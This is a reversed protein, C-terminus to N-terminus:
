QCSDVLLVQERHTLLDKHREHIDRSDDHRSDYRMADKMYHKYRQKHRMRADEGLDEDLDFPDMRHKRAYDKM